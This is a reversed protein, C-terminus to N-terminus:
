FCYRPTIGVRVLPMNGAQGALSGGNFQYQLMASNCTQFFLQGSGVVTSTAVPLPQDFAGGTTEYFTFPVARAGPVYTSQGTIWRQGALGLNVGNIAYTYMAMFAVPSANNIEAMIGQGSLGSNFWNGSLGFDLNVPENNGSPVCTVNKTLRTLPISGVRGDMFNYDLMGTDCASFSLNATGIAVGNTVPPMAFNGGSNQYITMASSSQGTYAYGGMTYWRQSGGSTAFTFWSVQVYGQGPAFMDQFVEVQMGQRDTAPNFYSGTLGHQNIDPASSAIPPFTLAAVLATRAACQLPQSRMTSEGTARPQAGAGM